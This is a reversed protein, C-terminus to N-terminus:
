KLIDSIRRLGEPTAKVNLANCIQIYKKLMKVSMRLVEKIIIQIKQKKIEM